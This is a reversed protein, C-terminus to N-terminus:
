DAFRRQRQSVSRELELLRRKMDIGGGYGTLSGNAGIVRHCPIIIPIPNLGNAAGVARCANANGIAIAIDLYSRTSGFPITGVEKWVRKQFDSGRVDLASRFEELEGSLYSGLEECILRHEYRDDDQVLDADPFMRKLWAFFSGADESPLHIKCIGRETSGIYFRGLPSDFTTYYVREVM